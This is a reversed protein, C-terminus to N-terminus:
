SRKRAGARKRDTRVAREGQDIYDDVALRVLESYPRDSVAALKQLRAYQPASLYLTVRKM